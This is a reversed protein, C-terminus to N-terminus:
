FAVGEDRKMLRILAEVKQLASDGLQLAAMSREREKLLIALKLRQRKNRHQSELEMLRELSSESQDMDDPQLSGSDARDTVEDSGRIEQVRDVSRARIGGFSGNDDADTLRDTQRNTLRDTPPDTLRDTPPDTLRDTSRDTLRSDDGPVDGVVGNCRYIPPMKWDLLSDTTDDDDSEPPIVPSSSVMATVFLLTLM